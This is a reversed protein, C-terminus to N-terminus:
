ANRCQNNPFLLATLTARDPRRRQAPGRGRNLNRGPQLAMRLRRIARYKMRSGQEKSIGIRRCAEGHSCGEFLCLRLLWEEPAPLRDLARLLAARSEAAMLRLEPDDESRPERGPRLDIPELTLASRRYEWRLQDCLKRVAIGRLYHGPSRVAQAGNETGLWAALMTEQCLDEACDLGARPLRRRFFGLLASYTRGSLGAELRDGSQPVGNSGDSGGIATM